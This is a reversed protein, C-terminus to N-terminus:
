QFVRIERIENETYSESPTEDALCGNFEYLGIVIKKPYESTCNKKLKNIM